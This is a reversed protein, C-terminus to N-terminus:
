YYRKIIQFLFQIPDHNITFKYIGELIVLSPKIFMAVMSVIDAPPGTLNSLCGEQSRKINKKEEREETKRKKKGGRERSQAEKSRERKKKIIHHELNCVTLALTIGYEKIPSIFM